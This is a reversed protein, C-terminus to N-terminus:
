SPLRHFDPATGGSNDSLGVAHNLPGGDTVVELGSRSPPLHSTGVPTPAPPAKSRDSLWSVQGLARCSIAAQGERKSLSLPPPYSANASPHAAMKSAAIRKM